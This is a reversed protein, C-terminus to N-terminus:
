SIRRRLSMIICNEGGDSDRGKSALREAKMSNRSDPSARSESRREEKIENSRDSSLQRVLVVVAEMSRIM